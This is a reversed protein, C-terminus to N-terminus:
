VRRLLAAPKSCFDAFAGRLRIYMRRSSATASLAFLSYVPSLGRETVIVNGLPLMDRERLSCIVCRLHMDRGRLPYIEFLCFAFRM